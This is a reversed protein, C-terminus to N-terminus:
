RPDSCAGGAEVRPRMAAEFRAREDDSFVREMAEALSPINPNGAVNLAMEWPVPQSPIVCMSADFRIQRFGADECARLLDREDFDLM